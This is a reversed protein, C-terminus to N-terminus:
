VEMYRVTTTDAAAALAIGVVLTAADTGDVYLAVKGAAAAKLRVGAVVGAGSVVAERIPGRGYVTVGAAVAADHLAQGIVKISGAGAPGVTNDGNVEVLQGGTVATTAVTTSFEGAPMVITYDGM